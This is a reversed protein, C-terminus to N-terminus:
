ADLTVRGTSDGISDVTVDVRDLLTLLLNAMPTNSPVTTHRGGSGAPGGVTGPPGSPTEVFRVRKLGTGAGFAVLKGIGSNTVTGLAALACALGTAPHGTITKWCPM